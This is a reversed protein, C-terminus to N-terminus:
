AAKRWKLLAALLFLFAPVLLLHDLRSFYFLFDVPRSLIFGTTSGNQVVFKAPDIVERHWHGYFTLFNWFIILWVFIRFERWGPGTPSSFHLRYLLYFMGAIFLVHGIQHSVLGEAGGHHQVAWATDPLFFSLVPVLAYLCPLILNMKGAFLAKNHMIKKGSILRFIAEYASSGLINRYDFLITWYM